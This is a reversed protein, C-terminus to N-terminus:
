PNAGQTTKAGRGLLEDEEFRADSLNPVRFYTAQPGDREEIAWGKAVGDPQAHTEYDTKTNM